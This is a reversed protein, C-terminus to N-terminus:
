TYICRVHLNCNDGTLLIVECYGHRTKPRLGAADVKSSLLRHSLPSSSLWYCRPAYLLVCIPRYRGIHTCLLLMHKAYSFEAM